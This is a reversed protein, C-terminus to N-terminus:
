LYKIVKNPDPRKRELPENKKHGIYIFGAIKDTTPNGGLYILMKENYSYWETLWQAAYGMEQACSLLNMCVAGASLHMEWKPIFSHKIPTSLVAIVLSARQLKKTQAEIIEDDQNSNTKKFETLLIEEDIKVLSKGQIVILKWPNLAGHDPVRIGAALISEVDNKNIPKQSMNKAMISRRNIFFNKKLIM